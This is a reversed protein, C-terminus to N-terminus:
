LLEFNFIPFFQGNILYFHFHRLKFAQIKLGLLFKPISGRPSKYSMYELSCLCILLNKTINICKKSWDFFPWKIFYIPFPATWMNRGIKPYTLLIAFIPCFRAHTPPLNALNLRGIKTMKPMTPASCLLAIENGSIM